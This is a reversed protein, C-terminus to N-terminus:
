LKILYYSSFFLFVWLVFNLLHYSIFMSKVAFRQQLQEAYAMSKGSQCIGLTFLSGLWFSVRGSRSQVQILGCKVLPFIPPP